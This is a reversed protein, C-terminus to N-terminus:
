KMKQNSDKAMTKNNNHLGTIIGVETYTKQKLLSIIENKDAVQQELLEIQKEKDAIRKELLEIEKEKSKLIIEKSESNKEESKQPTEQTTEQSSSAILNRLKTCNKFSVSTENAEWNQVTRLSVDLMEALKEQSVGLKLRIERVDLDNM